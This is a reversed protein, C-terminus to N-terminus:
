REERRRIVSVAESVAASILRERETAKETASMENDPKSGPSGEIRGRFEILNIQVAM